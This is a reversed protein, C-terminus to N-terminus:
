NTIFYVTIEKVINKNPVSLDLSLAAHGRGKRVRKGVGWVWRDTPQQFDGTYSYPHTWHSTHRRLAAVPHNTDEGSTSNGERLEDSPLRILQVWFVTSINPNAVKHEVSLNACFQCVRCWIMSKSVRAQPKFARKEKEKAFYLSGSLLWKVDM